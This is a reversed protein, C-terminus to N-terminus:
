RSAVKDLELVCHFRRASDRSQAEQHKTMPFSRVARVFVAHKNMRSSNVEWRGGNGKCNCLSLSLSLSSPISLSFSICLCYSISLCLSPSPSLSLSVPLSPVLSVSLPLYHSCPISLAFLICLCYSIPLCLSSSLSLSLSIFLSLHSSYPLCFSFVRFSLYVLCNTPVCLRQLSREPQLGFLLPILSRQCFVQLNFRPRPRVSCRGTFLVVSVEDPSGPDARDM